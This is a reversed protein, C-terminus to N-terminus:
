SPHITLKGLYHQDLTSHAEAAQSLPFTYAIHVHFPAMEILRNLKTLREPTPRGDYSIITIDPHKQPIPDVGHPYAARAGKRLTQLCQDAIPGGTTLLATDIGGPAFKKALDSLSGAKHGDIVVDAGLKKCLAIGDDGSAVAFVKAGMRKALQVALHGIGGSAGLILISEGPKLHIEELGCLATVADVPLAGAQEMTINSPILAANKANVAVYQAYFGGKPNALSLAYVRDGLKFNRVNSGVASVTGAGDSGPVYPFCPTTGFMKAFGGHLEFPDWVGVDASQVKILIEDPSLQPIPVTHPTIAGGFKDVAAAHM